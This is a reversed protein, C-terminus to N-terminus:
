VIGVVGVSYGGELTVPPQPEVLTAATPVPAVAHAEEEAKGVDSVTSALASMLSPEGAAELRRQQETSGLIGAGRMSYGIRTRGGGVRGVSGFSRPSAKSRPSGKPKSPVGPSAKLAPLRPSRGVSQPPEPQGRASSPAVPGVWPMRVRPPGNFLLSGNLGQNAADLIVPNLADHQYGELVEGALADSLM